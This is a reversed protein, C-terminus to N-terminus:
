RGWGGKGAGGKKPSGRVAAGAHLLAAKTMATCTAALSPRFIQKLATARGVETCFSLSIAPQTCILSFASRQDRAAIQRLQLSATNQGPYGSQCIRMLIVAQGSHRDLRENKAKSVADIHAQAKNTTEIGSMHAPLLIARQLSHATAISIPTLCAAFPYKRDPHRLQYMSVHAQPCWSLHYFANGTAFPRCYTSCCGPWDDGRHTDSSTSSWLLSSCCARNCQV